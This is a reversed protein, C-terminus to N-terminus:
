IGLEKCLAIIASAKSDNDRKAIGLEPNFTEVGFTLVVRSPVVRVEASGSTTIRRTQSNVPQDDDQALLPASFILSFLLLLSSNFTNKMTIKRLASRCFLAVGPVVQENPRRPRIPDHTNSNLAALSAM